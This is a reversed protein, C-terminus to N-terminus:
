AHLLQVVKEEIWFRNCISLKGVIYIEMKVSFRLYPIDDIFSMSKVECRVHLTVTYKM